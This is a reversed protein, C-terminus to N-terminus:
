RVVTFQKTILGANTTVKMLYNGAQLAGFRINETQDLAHQVTTQYVVKGNIDILQIDAQTANAFNFEINVNNDAITPFVSVADHALLPQKNGTALRDPTFVRSYNGLVINRDRSINFDALVDTRQFISVPRYYKEEDFISQAYETAYYNYNEDVGHFLHSNSIDNFFHVGVMYSKGPKMEIRTPNNNLDNLRVTYIKAGASDLILDGVAIFSGGTMETTNVQKDNNVDEFEYVRAEIGKGALEDGGPSLAFQVMDFTKNRADNEMRYISGSFRDLFGENLSYANTYAIDYAWTSDTVMWLIKKVNDADDYDASDMTIRYEIEYVGAQDPTEFTLSQNVINQVTDGSAIDGIEHKYTYVLAQTTTDRVSVTLAVNTADKGGGNEVDTMWINTAKQEKQNQAMVPGAFWNSAIPLKINHDELKVIKIDDLVWFYYNADYIFRVRVQDSNELGKLRVRMKRSFHNDNVKLDQNIETSDWTLGDDGSWAVWFKSYYQRAASYFQLSVAQGPDVHSLDIRPSTFHNFQHAPCPGTSDVAGGTDLSDSQFYAAGNCATPSNVWNEGYAGRSYGNVAVKWVAAECASTTTWGGLGNSFDGQGPEDGWYAIDRPNKKFIFEFKLFNNELFVQEEADDISVAWIHDVTDVGLLRELPPRTDNIQIMGVGGAEEIFKAKDIYWYTGRKCVGVNGNLPALPPPGGLYPETLQATFTQGLPVCEHWDGSGEVKIEKGIVAADQADTIRIYYGEQAQIVASFLLLLCFLSLIKQLEKQM